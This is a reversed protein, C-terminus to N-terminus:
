TLQTHRRYTASSAASNLLPGSIPKGALTVPKGTPQERAQNMGRDIMDMMAAAKRNKSDLLMVESLQALADYWQATEVFAEARGLLGDVELRLEEDVNPPIEEPPKPKVLQIRRDMTGLFPDDGFRKRASALEQAAWDYLNAEILIEINAVTELLTLSM